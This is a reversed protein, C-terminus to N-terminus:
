PADEVRRLTAAVGAVYEDQVLSLAPTLVDRGPMYRTGLVPYVIYLDRFGNALYTDEFFGVKVGTFGDAEHEAHRIEVNNLSFDTDRVDLEVVSDEIAKQVILANDFLAEGLSAQPHADFARFAAMAAASQQATVSAFAIM